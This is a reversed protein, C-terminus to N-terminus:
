LRRRKYERYVQDNHWRSTVIFKPSFLDGISKINNLEWEPIRYLLYKHSLAYNNKQRDKEQYKLFETRTKNFFTIWKFHQMGDYEILINMTPLYFDYRANIFDDFIKERECPISAKRLLTMIEQEGKSPKNNMRNKLVQNFKKIDEERKLCGCSKTNGSRIQDGRASLRNGCSCQCIWQAGTKILDKKSCDQYLVTLRSDPVGHESMIWGTMDLVSSNSNNYQTISQKASEKQLCGCSKTNGIRLNRGSVIIQNGCACQCLWQVYKGKNPAREIVVLRSDPVGHKSMDWGTMDILGPM